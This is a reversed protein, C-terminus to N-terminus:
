LAGAYEPAREYEALFAIVIDSKPIGKEALIDGIEINTSNAHLYVKGEKIEFHFVIGHKHVEGIWGMKFLAFETEAKNILLHFKIDPANSFTVAAQKELEKKLITQYKKLKDM